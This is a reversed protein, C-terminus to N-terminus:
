YAAEILRASVRNTVELYYKTEEDNLEIDDLASLKNMADTYKALFDSYEMILTLDDPNASYKEMFDCYENMLTEYSDLAQKVEARVGSSQSQEPTPEEAPATTTTQPAPTTTQVTTTQEATTQVPVDTVEASISDAVSKTSETEQSDEKAAYISISIINFGEYKIYISDGNENDASFSNEHKSYDVTFGNAICQEVYANYDDHTTDCVYAYLRSSSDVTIKGVSSVPKPILASLGIDSWVINGREKPADLNVRYYKSSTWDYLSLSLKYGDSNYAEYGNTSNDADITFGNEICLQKYEEYDAQSDYYIDASFSNGSNSNIEGNKSDPVPLISSIGAGTWELKPQSKCATLSFVASLLAAALIKNKM